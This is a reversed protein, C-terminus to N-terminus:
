HLFYIQSWLPLLGTERSKQRRTRFGSPVTYYEHIGTQEHKSKKCSQSRSGPIKTSRRWGNQLCSTPRPIERLLLRRPMLLQETPCLSATICLDRKNTEDSRKGSKWLYGVNGCCSRRVVVFESVRGRSFLLTLLVVSLIYSLM